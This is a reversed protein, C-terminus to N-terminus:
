ATARTPKRYIWGALMAFFIAFWGFGIILRMSMPVNPHPSVYGEIVGCIVLGLCGFLMVPTTVQIADRFSQARSPVHAVRDGDRFTKAGPNVLADGVYLGCGASVCIIFLEVVGHAPIFHLLRYMVGYHHCFALLGGLMLGNVGMMYITGLGFVIGVVFTTLCVVINNLMIGFSLVVAPAVTFVSDTWVKGARVEDMQAQGIFIGAMEEAFHVMTFGAIGFLVFLAVAIAIPLRLTRFSTPVEVSLWHWLAQRWRTDPVMLYEQAQLYVSQLSARYSSDPARNLDHELARYDALMERAAPLGLRKAKRQSRLNQYFRLWRSASPNKNAEQDRNM